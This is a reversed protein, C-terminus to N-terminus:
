HEKHCCACKSPDCGDFCYTCIKEKPLGIAEVLKEMSQYKLSTLGLSKRIEEVMRNYRESGATTYEQLVAEDPEGGELTNVIRRAILDLASKSRSFNLFLCPFMLPPSASRMHVEKAGREYLRKAINKFQTGRVISDDCFLLKQGSIQSDVPVLKMKAVLDRMRQNQPMFSRPWTPTYKVLARLYPKDTANSYGIAHAVGSDPIGCVSDIDKYEDDAAILAGNRYRVEETNQGEYCSSPYGFYVWFFSCIQMCEEPKKVQLIGDRTIKVIEGPGLERELEYDLNPLSTTEMAAAYAGHRKGIVLPTRGYKDRVAYICNGSMILMSCSGNICNMAKEIGKEITDATNILSAVVETPNYEGSSLESFHIHHEEIGRRTIEQINNIKGVTVISYIGLHSGIILPQDEMDSIVGIGCNGELHSLDSDFKSRFQANTIDHIFRQIAGRSNTVALGGRKTGLHSHYDTGYFLDSVCDTESVVGFFGGM